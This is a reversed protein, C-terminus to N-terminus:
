RNPQGGLAGVRRLEDIREASYGLVDRLVAETHQGLAPVHSIQPPTRSLEIRTREVLHDPQGEHPVSVFHRQHALQPDEASGAHIVAHAPVGVGQLAQETEQATRSATWAGIAQDIEDGRARRAEVSSLEESDAWQEQGIASALVRWDAADRVAVAVWENDGAAPYIAHPFM